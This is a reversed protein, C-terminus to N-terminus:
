LGPLSGTSPPPSSPITPTPMLNLRTMENELRAVDQDNMNNTWGQPLELGDLSRGSLADEPRPIFGWSTYVDRLFRDWGIILVASFIVVVIMVGVERLASWFTPWKANQFEKLGQDWFSLQSDPDAELKEEETMQEEPDFFMTPMGEPMEERVNNGPTNASTIKSLDLGYVNNRQGAAARASAEQILQQSVKSKEMGLSETRAKIAARM